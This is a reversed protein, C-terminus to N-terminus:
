LKDRVFAILFQDFRGLVSFKQHLREFIQALFGSLNDLEHEEVIERLLFSGANEPEGLHADGASHMGSKPMEFIRDNRIGGHFRFLALVALRSRGLGDKFQTM